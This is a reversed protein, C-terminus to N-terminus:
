VTGKPGFGKAYCPKCFPDGGNDCASGSDLGRKCESCTFCTKHWAKGLASVKEAFGVSRGCRPCGAGGGLAHVGSKYQFARKAVPATYARAAPASRPPAAAEEDGGGGEADGDEFAREAARARERNQEVARQAQTLGEM